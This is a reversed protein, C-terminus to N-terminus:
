YVSISSLGLSSRSHESSQAPHGPSPYLPETSLHVRWALAKWNMDGCIVQLDQSFALESEASRPQPRLSDTKLRRWPSVPIALNEPVLSHCPCTLNLDNSSQGLTKETHRRSDSHSLCSWFMKLLPYSSFRLSSLFVAYLLYTCLIKHINVYKVKLKVWHSQYIRVEGMQCLSSSYCGAAVIFKSNQELM